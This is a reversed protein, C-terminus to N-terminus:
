RKGSEARLQLGRLKLVSSFGTGRTWFVSDLDMHGSGQAVSIFQTKSHSM